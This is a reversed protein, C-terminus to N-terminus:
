PVRSSNTIIIKTRNNQEEGTPFFFVFSHYSNNFFHYHFNIEGNETTLTMRGDLKHKRKQFYDNIFPWESSLNDPLILNGFADSFNRSLFLDRKTCKFDHSSSPAKEFVLLACRKKSTEVYKRLAAHKSSGFHDSLKFAAPIGLPLKKLESMFRDHQFLTVSAFYNAEAEFEEIANSSLSEDDDELLDHIKQQWTLVGHGTEHLKVFNKRSHIQSLDLYITKTRRDFLGRLSSLGKILAHTARSIYSEHITSIDIKDNVVLETYEVIRNVPTPFVDLSRSGKLIDFSIKEIDKASLLEIM